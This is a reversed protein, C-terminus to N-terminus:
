RLDFGSDIVQVHHPNLIIPMPERGVHHLFLGIGARTRASELMPGFRVLRLPFEKRGEEGLNFLYTPRYPVLGGASERFQVGEPQHSDMTVRILRWEKEEAFAPNKFCLVMDFITNTAHFSMITSHPVNGMRMGLEERAANAVERLYSEVLKRQEELSYIVKRFFPITGEELENVSSSIRTADSFEFGLSYGDGRGAYGRWQSLLSGSECFCVVFAHHVSKGFVRSNVLIEGLFTRVASDNEQRMFENIVDFVIQQGYQLENPDNFSTIHGLWLNRNRLIGQMGALTTYHFLQFGDPMGHLPLWEKYFSDMAARLKPTEYAPDFLYSPSASLSM